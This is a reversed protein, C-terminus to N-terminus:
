KSYGDSVERHPVLLRGTMIWHRQASQLWGCRWGYGDASGTARELKGIGALLGKPSKQEVGEGKGDGDTTAGLM